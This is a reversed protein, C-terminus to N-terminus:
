RQTRRKSEPKPTAVESRSAIQAEQQEQAREGVELALEAFRARVDPELDKLRNALRAVGPPNREATRSVNSLFAATESFNYDASKAVLPQFTKALLEAGAHQIQIFADLRNTVYYKSDTEQMYGSKLVLVCQARIPRSVMPGQYTDEAYILHTDHDSFCYQLMGVTGAGDTARFSDPGTRTLEVKSIGMVKWINVVVEPHRVLFLYMNPDCNIVRLPMRRYISPRSVISRVKATMGADLKDFPISRVADLRAARSNTADAPGAAALSRALALSALVVIVAARRCHWTHRSRVYRRQRWHTVTSCFGRIVM